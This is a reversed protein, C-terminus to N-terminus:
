VQLVADHQSEATSRHVAFLYWCAHPRQRQFRSEHAAHTVEDQVAHRYIQDAQRQFLVVTSNLSGFLPWNNVEPQTFLFLVAAPRSPFRLQRACLVLARVTIFNNVHPYSLRRLPYRSRIRVTSRIMFQHWQFRLIKILRTERLVRSAIDYCQQM